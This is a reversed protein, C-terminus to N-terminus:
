KTEEKPKWGYATGTVPPHIKIGSKGDDGLRKNIDDIIEKMEENCKRSRKVEEELRKNLDVLHELLEKKTMGM